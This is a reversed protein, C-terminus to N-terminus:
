TGAPPVSPRQSEPPPTPSQTADGSRRRRKSALFGPPRRWLARHGPAGAATFDARDFLPGARVALLYRHDQPQWDFYRSLIQLRGDDSDGVLPALGDPRTYYLVFDCMREFLSTSSPPSPPAMANSCCGVPWSCRWCWVTTHSRTRSRSGDANVQFRMCAEVGERGTQVWVPAIRLEPLLTGLFLLGVYDALTHNTTIGDRYREINATIHSGHASLGALLSIIFQDSVAPADAILHYAWLWNVARIAVEMACSWNVGYGPPNSALWDELQAVVGAAYRLDGTLRWAMGLHPLHQCRSM